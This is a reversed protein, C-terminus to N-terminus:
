LRVSATRAGTGGHGHVRARAQAGARRRAVAEGARSQKGSAGGSGGALADRDAKVARRRREGAGGALADKSDASRGCM